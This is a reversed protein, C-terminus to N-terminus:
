QYMYNRRANLIQHCAKACEKVLVDDQCGLIMKLKDIRSLHIFDEYRATLKTFLEFRINNYLPCDLLAHMENEIDLHCISCIREEEVLGEYRGTEIRLPATGCRFQALASRYVKPMISYVYCESKFSEKFCRYTRLKNKGKKSKSGEKQITEYWKRVVIEESGEKTAELISEKDIHDAEMYDQLNLQHLLEKTKTVWNKRYMNAWIFVKKNCRHETMNRVRCWQRAIEDCQHQWPVRVGMDGQVAANPTFKKVGLFYRCMRNHVANICSFEKHGWIAAGYRVIPIVMSEYLKTFCKYSMGGLVKAKSILLGLARSASKAVTQATVNFDLKYDLVLGLYKYQNVKSMTVEGLKFDFETVCKSQPRFHLVQSKKTNVLVDWNNCWEDLVNLMEQLDQENEAMLAIDDAYLLLCLQEGNELQIGTCREKILMALDNIYINFLVPSVLCGQRLGTNVDFWETLVNDMGLKVCCSVNTYLSKLATLINGSLGLRELKFWLFHRNIRDYAKSFDIFATFTDLKRSKRSQIINTFSLLHDITSRKKRFGNQEDVLYDNIEVWGSLRVNIICCYLKYLSSTIAIGRYNSPIRNDSSPDKHVPTIVSKNWCSPIRGTKFCVNFLTLLFGASTPNRLVELPLGDIGIAKGLKAQKLAAIVEEWTIDKNVDNLGVEPDQYQPRNDHAQNDNLLSRFHDCWNTLM